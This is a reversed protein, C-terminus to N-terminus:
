DWTNRRDIIVADMMMKVDGVGDNRRGQFYLNCGDYSSVTIHAWMLEVYQGNKVGRFEFSHFKTQGNDWTREYMRGNSNKYVTTWLNNRVVDM